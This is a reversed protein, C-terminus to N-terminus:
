KKSPAVTIAVLMPSSATLTSVFDIASIKVGPQPNNWTFKILHIKMGRSRTATNGGFWVEEAKILPPDTPHAWWDLENEGYILNATRTEGNEYHMVYEGIKLGASSGM